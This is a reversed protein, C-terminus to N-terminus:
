QEDPIMFVDANLLVASFDQFVASLRAHISLAFIDIQNKYMYVQLYLVNAFLSPWIQTSFIVKFVTSFFRILLLYYKLRNNIPRM